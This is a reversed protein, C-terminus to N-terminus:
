PRKRPPLPVAAVPALAQGSARGAPNNLRPAPMPVGAAAAAQPAARGTAAASGATSTWAGPAGPRKSPMPWVGQRGTGTSAVVLPRTRVPEEALTAAATEGDATVDGLEPGGIAAVRASDGGALGAAGDPEAEDARAAAFSQWAPDGPLSAPTAAEVPTVAALEGEEPPEDGTGTEARRPRAKAVQIPAEDIPVANAVQLQRVQDGLHSLMEDEDMPVDRFGSVTVVALRDNLEVFARWFRPALVPVAAADRDEVLVYLIDGQRRTEIVSVQSGDGGRGLLAQGEPTQLYSELRSLGRDGASARGFGPDGSLGVSIIGPMGPPLDLASGDSQLM